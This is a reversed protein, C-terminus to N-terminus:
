PRPDCILKNKVCKQRAWVNVLTQFSIEAERASLTHVRVSRKLTNARLAVLAGSVPRGALTHCWVHHVALMLSGNRELRSQHKEWSGQIEIQVKDNPLLKLRESTFYEKIIPNFSETWMVANTLCRSYVHSREVRGGCVRHSWILICSLQASHSLPFCRCKWVWISYAVQLRFDNKYTGFLKTM